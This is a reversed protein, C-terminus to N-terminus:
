DRKQITIEELRGTRKLERLIEDIKDVLANNGLKTAIGYFEQTFPSGAIKLSSDNRVIDSTAVYDLVVADIFGAKLDYLMGSSNTSEYTSYPITLNESTYKKTEYYGTTENQVGVRKNKLDEPLQINQNDARVIIVQGGNFYPTSFLMREEREETITISSIALDIKGNDIYLFLNNWDYDKFELEVGIESAIEKAIDVDVGAPNGLDDFYEMVGYPIDSGVVLKGRSKIESLSTDSVKDLKPFDFYTFFGALLIIALFLIILFGFKKM